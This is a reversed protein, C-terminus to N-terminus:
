IAEPSAASGPGGNVHRVQKAGWSTTWRMPHTPGAWMGHRLVEELCRSRWEVPVVLEVDVEVVEDIYVIM